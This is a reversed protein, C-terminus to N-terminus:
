RRYRGGGNGRNGRGKGNGRNRYLRQDPDLSRRWMAIGYTDRLTITKGGNALTVESAILAPNGNYFGNFVKVKVIDGKKLELGQKGLWEAPGLHIESKKGEYNMFLHLGKAYRGTGGTQEEINLVKGEVLVPQTVQLNRCVGKGQGRGRGQGMGQQAFSVTVMALIAIAAVVLTKTKM